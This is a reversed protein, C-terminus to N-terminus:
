FVKNQYNKNLSISNTKLYLKKKYMRVMNQEEIHM